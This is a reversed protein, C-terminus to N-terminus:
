PSRLILISLVVSKERNICASYLVVVRTFLPGCHVLCFSKLLTTLRVLSQILRMETLKIYCGANIDCGLCVHMTKSTM